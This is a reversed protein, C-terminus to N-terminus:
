RNRESLAALIDASLSVADDTTLQNLNGFEPHDPRDPFFPELLDPAFQKRLWTNAMEFKAMIDRSQNASMVPRPAPPLSLENLQAMVAHRKKDRDQATGSGSLCENLRRLYELTPASVTQPLEAVRHFGETDPTWTKLLIGLMDTMIDGDIFDIDSHRRLIISHGSWVDLWKELHFKYFLYPTPSTEAQVCAAAHTSFSDSLLGERIAKAYDALIADDQRRVYILIEIEDFHPELLHRLNLIAQPHTMAGYLNACSLVMRDVHAPLQARQWKLTEGIRQRLETQDTATKIGYSAAIKPVKLACAIWLTDHSKGQAMVDGYAIGRKALWPANAALNAQLLAADTHPAGIHCYLKM